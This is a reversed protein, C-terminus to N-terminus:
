DETIHNPTIASRMKKLAAEIKPIDMTRCSGIQNPHFLRGEDSAEVKDLLAFLEKIGEIAKDNMM